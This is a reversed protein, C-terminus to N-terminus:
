EAYDFTLLLLFDDSLQKNVIPPSRESRKIGHGWTSSAGLAGPQLSHPAARAETERCRADRPTPCGVSPGLIDCLWPSASCGWPQTDQHGDQGRPTAHRPTPLAPGALQARM